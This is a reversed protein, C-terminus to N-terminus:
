RHRTALYWGTFKTAWTGLLLRCLLSAGGVAPLGGPDVATPVRPVQDRVADPLHGGHQPAGRVVAPPMVRAGDGDRVQDALVHLQVQRGPRRHQLDRHHRGRRGFQHGRCGACCSNIEGGLGQVRFRTAWYDIGEAGTLAATM